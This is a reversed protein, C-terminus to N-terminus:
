ERDVHLVDNVRGLGLTVMIWTRLRIVQSLSLWCNCHFPLIHPSIPFLPRFHSFPFLFPLPARKELPVLMLSSSSGAGNLAM